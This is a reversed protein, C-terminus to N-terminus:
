KGGDRMATPLYKRFRDSLLDDMRRILPPPLNPIVAKTERRIAETLAAPDRTARVLLTPSQM